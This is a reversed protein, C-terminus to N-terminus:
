ILLEDLDLTPPMSASRKGAELMAARLREYEEARRRQEQRILMNRIVEMANNVSLRKLRSLAEQSGVSSLSSFLASRRKRSHHEEKNLDEATARTLIEDAEENQVPIQKHESESDTGSQIEMEPHLVAERKAFRLRPDRIQRSEIFDSEINADLDKKAFRLRPDRIQRGDIYRFGVDGDADRKAFRLRPDRSQRPEMYDSEINADSDKKAFRLRPDRIQREEMYRFGVDGDPDRKAFRLRPDRIQREEMYSSDVNGDPDRKAFRLRPDRIQRPSSGFDGRRVFRLRRKDTEFGDLTAQQGDMNVYLGEYSPSAVVSLTPLVTLMSELCIAALTFLLPKRLAM